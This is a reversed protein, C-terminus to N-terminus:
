HKADNYLFFSLYFWILYGFFSAKGHWITVLSDFYYFSFFRKETYKKLFNLISIHVNRNCGTHKTNKELVNLTRFSNNM